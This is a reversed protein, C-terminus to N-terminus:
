SEHNDDDHNHFNDDEDGYEDECITWRILSRLRSCFNTRAFRSIEKLTSCEGSVDDDVDDDDDVGDDDNNVIVVMLVSRNLTNVEMEAALLAKEKDDLKQTTTAM